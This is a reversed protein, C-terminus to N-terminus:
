KVIKKLNERLYSKLNNKGRDKDTDVQYKQDAYFKNDRIVDSLPIANRRQAEEATLKQLQYLDYVDTKGIIVEKGKGDDVFKSKLKFSNDTYAEDIPIFKGKINRTNKLRSVAILGEEPEAKSDLKVLYSNKTLDYIPDSPLIGINQIPDSSPNIPIVQEATATVIDEEDDDLDKIKRNVSTRAKEKEFEIEADYRDNIDKIADKDGPNNKNQQALAERRRAEIKNIERQFEPNSEPNTIVLDLLEEKSYGAKAARTIIDRLAGNIDTGIRSQDSELEGSATRQPALVNNLLKQIELLIRNTRRDVQTQGDNIQDQISQGLEEFKTTLKVDRNDDRTADLIAEKVLKEVEKDSLGSQTVIQRAADTAEKEAVDATRGAAIAATRAANAANIAEKLTVTRSTQGRSLFDQV